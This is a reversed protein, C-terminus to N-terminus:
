SNPARIRLSPSLIPTVYDIEYFSQESNSIQVNVFSAVSMFTTPVVIRKTQVNQDLKALQVTLRQVVIGVDTNEYTIGVPHTAVELSSLAAVVALLSWILNKSIHDTTKDTKDSHLKM